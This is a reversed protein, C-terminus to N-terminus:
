ALAPTGSPGLSNRVLQVIQKALVAFRKEMVVIQKQYFAEVKKVEDILRKRFQTEEPPRSTGERGKRYFFSFFWFCTLVV